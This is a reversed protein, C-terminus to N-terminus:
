DNKTLPYFPVEYIIVHVIMVVVQPQANMKRVVPNADMVQVASCGKIEDIIVADAPLSKHATELAAIYTSHDAVIYHLKRQNIATPPTIPEM